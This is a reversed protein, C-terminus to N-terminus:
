REVESKMQDFGKYAVAKMGVGLAAAVYGPQDDIFICEEPEVGLRKAALKYIRPDPKTTGAEFSMVMSDFLAQEEDSMFHDTIWTTGINSILGIKYKKKLEKIYDFVQVNRVVEPKTFIGEIPRAEKGTVEHLKEVFEKLNLQGADYQHNLEKAQDLVPGAPLSSCFELWWDKTLVGFCDFIVAKIM